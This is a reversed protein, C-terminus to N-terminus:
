PRKFLSELIYANGLEDIEKPSMEKLKQIADEVPFQKDTMLHILVNKISYGFIGPWNRLHNARLGHVYLTQLAELQDVCLGAMEQLAEIPSLKSDLPLKDVWFELLESHIRTWLETKWNGCIFKPTVGYQELKKSVTIIENNAYDTTNSNFFGISMPTVSLKPKSREVYNGIRKKEVENTTSSLSVETSINQEPTEEQTTIFITENLLDAINLLKKGELSFQGRNIQDKIADITTNLCSENFNERNNQAFHRKLSLELLITKNKIFNQMFPTEILYAAVKKQKLYCDMVSKSAANISEEFKKFASHLRLRVTDKFLYDTWFNVLTEDQEKILAPSSCLSHNTKFDFIFHLEKPLNNLQYFYYHSLKKASDSKIEGSSHETINPELQVAIEQAYPRMNPISLLQLHRNDTESRHPTCELRAITGAYDTTKTDLLLQLEREEFPARQSKFELYAIRKAFRGMVPHLELEAIRTKEAESIIRPPINREMARFM